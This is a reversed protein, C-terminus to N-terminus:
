IWIIAFIIEFKCSLYDFEVYNWIELISFNSSQIKFIPYTANESGPVFHNLFCLKFVELVIYFHTQYVVFVPAMPFTLVWHKNLVNEFNGCQDHPTFSNKEWLHWRPLMQIQTVGGSSDSCHGPSDSELYNSLLKLQIQHQMLGIISILDVSTIRPVLLKFVMGLM